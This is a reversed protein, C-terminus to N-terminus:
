FLDVTKDGGKQHLNIIKDTLQMNPLSQAAKRNKLFHITFDDALSSKGLILM